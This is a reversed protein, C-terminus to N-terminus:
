NTDTTSGYKSYEYQLELLYQQELKYNKEFCEEAFMHYPVIDDRKRLKYWKSIVVFLIFITFMVLTYIGYYFFGCGPFLRIPVNMLLVDLGLGVLTFIGFATISACMLLGKVQWPSQAILFECFSFFILVIGAAGIVEPILTWSCDLPVPVHNTDFM